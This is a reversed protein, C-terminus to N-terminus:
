ESSGRIGMAAYHRTFLAGDSAIPSGTLRAIVRRQPSEQWLIAARRFGISNVLDEVMGDVEVKAEDITSGRV